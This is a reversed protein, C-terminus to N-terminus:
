RREFHDDHSSCDGQQPRPCAREICAEESTTLNHDRGSRARWFRSIVRESVTASSGPGKVMREPDLLAVTLSRTHDDTEDVCSESSLSEASDKGRSLM